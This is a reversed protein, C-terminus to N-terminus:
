KIRKYEKLKKNIYEVLWEEPVALIDKYTYDIRRELTRCNLQVHFKSPLYYQITDEYVNRYVFPDELIGSITGPHNKDSFLKMLKINIKKNYDFNVVEQEITLFNLISGYDTMLSFGKEDKRLFVLYTSYFNNFDYNFPFYFKLQIRKITSDGFLIGKTRLTVELSDLYTEIRQLFVYSILDSKKILSDFDMATKVRNRWSYGTPFDDESKLHIGVINFIILLMFVKLFINKNM